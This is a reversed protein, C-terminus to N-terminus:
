RAFSHIFDGYRQRVLREIDKGPSCTKSGPNARPAMLAEVIPVNSNCASEVLM